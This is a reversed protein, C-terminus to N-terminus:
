QNTLVLSLLLIECYKIKNLSIATLYPLGLLLCAFAFISCGCEHAPQTRAVPSAPRPPAPALAMRGPVFSEQDLWRLLVGRIARCNLQFVGNGVVRYKLNRVINCRASVFSVMTPRRPRHAGSLQKLYRTVERSYLTGYVIVGVIIDEGATRAFWGFMNSCSNFTDTQLSIPIEM